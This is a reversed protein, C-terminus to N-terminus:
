FNMGKKMLYDQHYEEARYFRTFPEVRSYVPGRCLAKMGELVGEAEARQDEDLYWVASRYQCKTQRSSSHMRSWTILLDESSVISPDFEVLLAETHDKINRYTPELQKGGTYGVVVRVVGDLSM